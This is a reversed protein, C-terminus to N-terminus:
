HEVLFCDANVYIYLTCIIVGHGGTEVRLFIRCVDLLVTHRKGLPISHEVVRKRHGVFVGARFALLAKDGNSHVGKPGQHDNDM